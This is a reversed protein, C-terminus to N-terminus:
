CMDLLFMWSECVSDAPCSSSTEVDVESVSFINWARVRLREYGSATGNFHFLFSLPFSSFSHNSVLCHFIHEKIKGRLEHDLHFIGMRSNIERRESFSSNTTTATFLLLAPFGKDVSVSVATGSDMRESLVSAQLGSLKEM